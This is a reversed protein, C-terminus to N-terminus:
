KDTLLRQLVSEYEEKTSPVFYNSIDDSKITFFQNLLDMSSGEMVVSEHTCMYNNTPIAVFFDVGSFTQGVLSSIPINYMGMNNSHGVFACKCDITMFVQPINDAILKYYEYNISEENSNISKEYIPKAVQSKINWAQEKM